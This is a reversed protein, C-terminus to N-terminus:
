NGDQFNVKFFRAVRQWKMADVEIIRVKDTSFRNAFKVWM